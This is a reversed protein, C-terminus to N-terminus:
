GHIGAHVPVHQKARGQRWIAALCGHRLQQGHAALHQGHVEAHLKEVTHGLVEWLIGLLLQSGPQPIRRGACLEVDAAAAHM